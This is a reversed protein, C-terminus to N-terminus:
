GLVRRVDAEDAGLLAAIRAPTLGASALVRAQLPLGSAVLGIPVTVLRGHPLDAVQRCRSCLGATLSAWAGCHCTGITQAAM